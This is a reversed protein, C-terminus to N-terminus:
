MMLRLYDDYSKFIFPNSEYYRILNYGSGSKTMIMTFFGSFNTNNLFFVSREKIIDFFNKKTEKFQIEGLINAGQIEVMGTNEIGTLTTLGKEGPSPNIILVTCIIVSHIIVFIALILFNMPKEKKLSLNIEM